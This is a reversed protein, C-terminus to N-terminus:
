KREHVHNVIGRHRAWVAAETRKHVNIKRYISRIHNKVTNISLNLECAISKDPASQAIMALVQRERCSLDESAEAHSAAGSLDVYSNIKAVIKQGLWSTDQMVAEVAMQLQQHSRRQATINQIVTLVCREGLITVGESSMLCEVAEGTRTHLRVEASRVSGSQQLQREVAARAEGDAWLKLDVKSRGIAESRGHGFERTFAENADLIRREALTSILMPIPSLQFAQAFREESQKLAVEAKRRHELDIFTFLMCPQRGVEIPQGAVIVMKSGGDPLRLEAEMQSITRGEELHQIARERREARELVDVEYVSHGIVAERRYGTMELFGQNVKIYRLDRLRCIVAPAPNAGFMKEFRREAGIEETVDDLMLVIFDPNRDSDLLLLTSVKHISSAGGSRPVVEVVVDNLTEGRLARSAPYDSEDIKQGDLYRLEFTKAYAKSSRGLDEVSAATHLSVAKDNAWSLRGDMEVIIIGERLSRIIQQLQWRDAHQDAEQHTM